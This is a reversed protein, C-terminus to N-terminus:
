SFTLKRSSISDIACTRDTMWFVKYVIHLPKIDIRPKWYTLYRRAIKRKAYDRIFTEAKEKNLRLRVSEYPKDMKKLNPWSDCRLVKGTCGDVLLIVKFKRPRGIARPINIFVEALYQPYLITKETFVPEDALPQMIDIKSM